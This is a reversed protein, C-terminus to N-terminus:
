LRPKPNCLDTMWVQATCAYCCIPENMVLTCDGKREYRCCFCSLPHKENFDKVTMLGDQHETGKAPTMMDLYKNIEKEERERMEDSSLFNIGKYVGNDIRSDIIIVAYTDVPNMICHCPDCKEITETVFFVVGREEVKYENTQTRSNIIRGDLFTRKM